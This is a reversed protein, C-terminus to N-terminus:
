NYNVTVLFTGSYAGVPSDHSFPFTGGVRFQYFGEDGASGDLVPAPDADTALTVALTGPGTMEVESGLNIDISFTQGGEGSVTYEALAPAPSTLPAAGTGTVDLSADNPDLTVTGSGSSPRVVSGFSLDSTKELGLPHLVNAHAVGNMSGAPVSVLFGSTAAGSSGSPAIGFDAGVYFDRTADRPIGSVTFTIPDTGSPSGLTPPDAGAAITFNDLARARGTPTGFHTITVTESASACADDGTCTIVVRGRTSGGSVRAGAGSQKSVAGTAPAIRFVTDGSGASAVTGLDPEGVQVSVISITQARAASPPLISLVSALAPGWALHPRPHTSAARIM